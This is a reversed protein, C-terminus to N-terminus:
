YPNQFYYQNKTPKITNSLFMHSSLSDLFENTPAHKDYKLIDVNFDGLLFVNIEESIKRLLINLYNYNFEDLNM